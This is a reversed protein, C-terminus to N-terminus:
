MGSIVFVFHHGVSQQIKLTSKYVELVKQNLGTPRHLMAESPPDTQQLVIYLELSKEGHMLYHSINNSLSHSM